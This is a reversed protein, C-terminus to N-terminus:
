SNRVQEQVSDAPRTYWLTCHERRRVRWPFFLFQLMMRLLYGTTYWQLKRMSTDVCYPLIRFALGHKKGWKKLSRSFFLEESAYVSQPFGGVEHWADRGCFVFSGAALGFTRSIMNWLGMAFRGSGTVPDSTGVRAGGGCVSGSALSHLAERLLEADIRTDADLFIFFFGRATGAGANRARAIQNVPEFVVRAGENKAIEATRDTSNNDTVVIEGVFDAVEVMVARAARLTQGILAEENYAPIIISYDVRTDAMTGAQDHPSLHASLM